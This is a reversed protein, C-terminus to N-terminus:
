AAHRQSEAKEPPLEPMANLQADTYQGTQRLDDIDFESMGAAELPSVDPLLEAAKESGLVHGVAQGPLQDIMQSFQERSLNGTAIAGSVEDLAEDATAESDVGSLLELIERRVSESNRKLERTYSQAPSLEPGM